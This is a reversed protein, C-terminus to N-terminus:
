MHPLLHLLLQLMQMISSVSHLLALVCAALSAVAVSTVLLLVPASHMLCGTTFQTALSFVSFALLQPASLTDIVFFHNPLPM